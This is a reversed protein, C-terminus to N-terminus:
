DGAPNFKVQAASMHKLATDETPSTQARLVHDPCIAQLVPSTMFTTVLAMLVMMSFLAPSIVKIDLGINLIVLEMLGRTNMLTGLGAAERVPMGTWWAAVMSGGLKGVTAILIIIGCYMWMEGGKVLGVNTRLGTFAFFLPLLLAVVITEFRDLVYRVFKQEKPMIAGLLFSGFLLHIGLWETFLASVLALLLMLAIANESLRGSEQYRTEFRRLLRQVGYVMVLAFAILGGVTLWISSGTNGSRILLVIYALICWGTVDDVAACAIAVTGLRSQLMNRETLIRALVPFATISMAAGMFLAFNTFPVSSDSLRPYLYIALVSALVFPATISVHSTLVAAHGHSKLERPNIGLGVLFMFVVVGIQSLASLFGLSAPPFLYASFHPAIAGLLSPGLMIGAFMEGVVRPQRIKLFLTGVLRCVALVVAIQLVLTFMNPM